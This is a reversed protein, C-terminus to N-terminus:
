FLSFYFENNIIIQCIIFNWFCYKEWQKFTWGEEIVAKLIGWYIVVLGTWHVIYDMMLRKFFFGWDFIRDSTIKDLPINNINAIDCDTFIIQFLIPNYFENCPSHSNAVDNIVFDAGWYLLITLLFLFLVNNGYEFGYKNYLIIIGIAPILLFSLGIITDM